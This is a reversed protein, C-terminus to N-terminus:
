VQALGNQAAPSTSQGGFQAAVAGVLNALSGVAATVGPAATLAGALPVNGAGAAVPAFASALSAFPAFAGALNAVIPAFTSVLQPISGLLQPLNGLLQPLSGAMQPLNAAMQPLNGLLQPLNGLMQTLQPMNAAPPLSDLVQTLQPIGKEVQALPAPGIPSAPDGTQQTAGSTDVNNLSFDYSQHPGGPTLYGVIGKVFAAPDKLPDPANCILDDPNCPQAVKIDGFDVQDSVPVGPIQSLGPILKSLTTALGNPGQGYAYLVGDILEHPIAPDKALETLGNAAALAGESYGAITIQSNPCQAHFRRVENLLNTTGEAVSADAPIPDGPYPAFSASYHVPKADVGPPLNANSANFVRADPDLHGGLQLIRTSPCGPDGLAAAPAAVAGLGILTALLSMTTLAVLTRKPRM